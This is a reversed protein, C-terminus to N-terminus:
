SNRDEDHKTGSDTQLRSATQRYYQGPCLRREMPPITTQYTRGVREAAVNEPFELHVSGPKEAEAVKFAKRVVEAVVDPIEIRTNWKTVTAFNKVIDIYQHSQKHIRGLEVQGTVAVLPARDLFTDAIGTLLNTAGSGPYVPM